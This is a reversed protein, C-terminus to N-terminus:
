RPERYHPPSTRTLRQYAKRVPEVSYLSGFAVLLSDPGALSVAKRAARAPDTAEEVALGLTQLPEVLADTPLGRVTPAPFVVIAAGPFARAAPAAIAGVPKDDLLSFLFVPQSAPFIEHLTEMLAGVSLPCHSGDLILPPRGRVYEIRGPWNVKAVGARIAADPIAWGQSKLVEIVTLAARLNEAQHRGLLPLRVAIENGSRRIRYRVAQGDPRVTRSVIQVWRPAYYLPSGRQRCVERIVGLVEDAAGPTQRAVVVPRGAKIIGAKERAIAAHTTGLLHTHDLGITTIVSVEPLIVNTADLRGGLGTEIIGVEARDDRFMEFAVTTLLEFTTRFGPELRVGSQELRHRLSQVARTLRRKSVLSRGIRFRECYSELHPSTYLGARWGAESAISHLLAATSGKGKTGAIHVFPVARHPSGLRRLFEEFRRLHLARTGYKMRGRHLEYNIFSELFSITQSYTAMLPGTTDKLV